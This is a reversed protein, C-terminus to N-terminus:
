RRHAADAAMREELWAPRGLEATIANLLARVRPHPAKLYDGPGATGLDKGTCYLVEEHCTHLGDIAAATRRIASQVVTPTLGHGAALRAVTEDFRAATMQKCARHAAKRAETRHAAQRDHEDYRHDMAIRRAPRPDGYPGAWSRCVPCRWYWEEATVAGVQVGKTSVWPSYTMAPTRGRQPVPAAAPSELLASGDDPRSPHGGSHMADAEWDSDDAAASSIIAHLFAPLAPRIHSDAAEIPYRCRDLMDAIDYALMDLDVGPFDSTGAAIETAARAIM